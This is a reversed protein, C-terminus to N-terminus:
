DEDEDDQDDNTGSRGTSPARTTLPAALVRRLKEGRSTSQTSVMVTNARVTTTQAPAVIQLSTPIPVTPSVVQASPMLTTPLAGLGTAVAIEFEIGRVSATVAPTTPEYRSDATTLRMVVSLGRGFAQALTSGSRATADEITIDSAADLEVTSGEFLTILARADASTRLVTGVYLVTGDMASDFDGTASRMLVQGSMVTLIAVPQLAPKAALQAAVPVSAIGCLM